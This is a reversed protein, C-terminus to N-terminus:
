YCICSFPGGVFSMIIGAPLEFPSFLIRGLLDCLLVFSGGLLASCPLLFRADNGFLRRCIHPIILGIFGLLGAFSVVCGALISALSLLLFRTHSVRLGLSRAIDDGLGLMNLPQALFLSVFFAIAICLCPLILRSLTLRLPFRDSFVDSEGHYVTNLLKITNIGASLFSSVTIGALIITTRSSDSLAALFFILLTTILAGCFAFVPLTFSNAPFFIMALMVAFGSGSNVGITSPSALSNNMVGQLIVGSCSLGIGAFLGGLLRPIRVTTILIYSTSSRDAGTLCNLIDKFAINVSGFLIGACVSVLLLMCMLLITISKHKKM